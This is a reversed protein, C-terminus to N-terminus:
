PAVPYTGLVKYFASLSRLEALAAAVHADQPYRRMISQTTYLISAGSLAIM